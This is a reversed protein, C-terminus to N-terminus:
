DPSGTLNELLVSNIEIRSHDFADTLWKEFAGALKEDLINKEIIDYVQHPKLMQGEKKEDLYLAYYVMQEEMRIDSSQNEDLSKLDGALDEPLQDERMEYRAIMVDGSFKDRLKEINENNELEAVAKELLQRDKSSFYLYVLSKPIYFDEINSHYYDQIEDPDVNIEPKLINNVFKEWLLKHEIGTRWYRLDICEEILMKEFEGDPYDQRIENEVELIEERTVVIDAAELEARILEILILDALAQGYTDIMEQASPPFPDSWEFFHTDYGYEVDELLIPVDNVKAAIGTQHVENDCAAIFIFGCFVFPLFLFSQYKRM